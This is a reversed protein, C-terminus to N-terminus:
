ERGWGAGVDASSGAQGGLSGGVREYPAREEDERDEREELAAGEYFAHSRLLLRYAGGETGRTWRRM